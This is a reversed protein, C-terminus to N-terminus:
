RGFEQHSKLKCPAEELTLGPTAGLLTGTSQRSQAKSTANRFHLSIVTHHADHSVDAKARHTREVCAFQQAQGVNQGGCAKAAPITIEKPNPITTRFLGNHYMSHYEIEAIHGQHLKLLKHGAAEPSSKHLEFAYPRGARDTCPTGMQSTSCPM